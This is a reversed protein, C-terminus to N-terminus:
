VTDWFPVEEGSGIMGGGPRKRTNDPGNIDDLIGGVAEFPLVCYLDNEPTQRIVRHKGRQVTLYSKGNIKEIHIHLELDVEQDLQRSGAYYGKGAVEKVLDGRGDRILQKADTSMQHPTFFTINRTAMFNRTRRLLDRTDVGHPGMICGTTPVLALYDVECFIVEYGNAEMELIKNQINRYTMNTPDMRLIRVYWGREAFKNRVYSSVETPELESFDPCPKRFENEYLSQYLFQMNNRASDELSIRLLLPKKKPDRLFTAADNYLAIHKLFSLSIGTKYNHQLASLIIAEGQRFGGQLMRNMGQWGLKLIKAGSEQEKLSQYIGSVSEESSFDIDDVVSSDELNFQNQYPEIATSLDALFKALDPISDPDFKMKANAKSIIDACKMFDMHRRLQIRLNLTMRRLSDEALDQTVGERIANYLNEDDHCNVQLRVLLESLEYKHNPPNHAMGLATKKLGSLIDKEHDLGISLEPLKVTEVIEKVLDASNDQPDAFQSERYLLVISNTLLLKNDM